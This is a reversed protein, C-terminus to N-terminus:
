IDSAIEVLMWVAYDAEVAKCCAGNFATAQRGADGSAHGFGQGDDEKTLEGYIGVILSAAESGGEQNVSQSAGVASGLEDSDAGYGDLGDVLGCLFKVVTKAETCERVAFREHEDQADGFDSGEEM